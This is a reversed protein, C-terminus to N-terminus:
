PCDWTCDLWHKTLLAFDKMNVKCDKNIDGVPYPHRYDGCGAVDAFADIKGGASGHVKVYQIWKRGTNPDIALAAYDNPALERLDFGTGGASGGYLDIADAVFLGNFDGVERNPDVPRTWDLQEGWCNNVRDWAYANTPFVSNAYPGNSYTCWKNGDQSVSVMVPDVNVSTPNKLLFKAMDTDSAVWGDSEFFTNGFVIFDIGYPNGPDDAVKHDFKVVIEAGSGLITILKNGNPDTGWASYVLSCSYTEFSWSDYIKTTPKGLVSNPDDYPSSGFPEKFAVVETAFDSGMAFSSFTLLLLIHAPKTYVIM